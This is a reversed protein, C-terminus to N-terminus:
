RSLAMVEAKNTTPVVSSMEAASQQLNRRHCVEQSKFVRLVSARAKRASGGVTEITVYEHHATNM